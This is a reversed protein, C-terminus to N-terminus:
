LGFISKNEIVFRDAAKEPILGRLTQIASASYEDFGQSAASLAYTKLLKVSHPNRQLAEALIRYARVPDGQEQYFLAAAIVAEAFFPNAGCLWDFLSRAEEKRGSAYNLLATFYVKRDTQQPTFTVGQNIQEGLLQYSRQQALLILEFHQVEEYVSKETLTLGKIKQFYRIAAALEDQAYLKQSFDLWTRARYNENKISGAVKILTSSDAPGLRYKTFAYKEDDAFNTVWAPPSALVRVMKEALTRVVTDASNQLSDWVAVAPGIVGLESLVVAQTIQAPQFQQATSYALYRNAVDPVGQELAWLALVHNYKGQDNSRYIAQEMTRLAKEVEGQEYYAKAAAVQLVEQYDYNIARKSLAMVQALYTTDLKGIQNILYNHLLSATFLNLVTDTQLNIAPPIFILQHKQNALAFANSQVGPDASNLLALLSDAGLALNKETALGVLNTKAAVSSVPDAMSAQLYFLASDVVNLKKYLLGQTNQISGRSQLSTAEKLALLSELPNNERQYTYAYNLASMETPRRETARRYFQREKEFNLFRAEIEAVAYNSHHNLFGYNGGQQYFALATKSEGLHTYVDGAANYFGSISNHLPGKWGIYILFAFTAIAGGFRFTFYPMRSPKFLVKYVNLNKELMGSFNSIVYTFFILGFGLHAFIIITGLADLVSDNATAWFFAVTTFAVLAIALYVLTTFPEELFSELQEQRQRFGWIGLIGSLTLLLFFDIYIFNWNILNFKEAYALALNLLYVLSIVLFHQLSKTAGVGRSIGSVLAALVEHAVMLIFVFTLVLAIPIVAVSLQLFPAPAKAFLHICGGLIGFVALLVWWRSIFPTEKKFFQFWATTSILVALVVITPIKSTSNFLLLVELRLYSVLVILLTMSTLYWFRSLTTVIAVLLSLALFFLGVFAFHAWPQAQVRDGLLQDFIVYNDAPVTLEALGSTFTRIPVESVIQEQAHQWSFTPEPYLFYSTWLGVQVIILLAAVLGAIIRYSASWSRWFSLNLM